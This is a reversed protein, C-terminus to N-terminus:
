KEHFYEDFSQSTSHLPTIESESRRRREREYVKSCDAKSLAKGVGARKSRNVGEGEEKGGRQVKYAKVERERGERKEREREEVVVVIVEHGLTVEHLLTV